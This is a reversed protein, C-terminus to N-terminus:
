IDSPENDKTKPSHLLTSLVEIVEGATSANVRKDSEDTEVLFPCMGTSSEIQVQFSSEPQIFFWLGDDDAGPHLVKLQEVEVAPHMAQILEITKEVDRM